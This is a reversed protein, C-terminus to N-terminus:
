VNVENLEFDLFNWFGKLEIELLVYVDVMLKIFKLLGVWVCCVMVVVLLFVFGFWLIWVVDWCRCCLGFGFLYFSEMGKILMFIIRCVVVVLLCYLGFKVYLWWVFIGFEVNGKNGIFVILMFLRNIVVCNGGVFDKKSEKFCDLFLGFLVVWFLVINLVVNRLMLFLLFIIVWIVLLFGFYLLVVFISVLVVM